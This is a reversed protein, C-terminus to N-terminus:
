EFHSFPESTDPDTHRRREKKAESPRDQIFDSAFAKPNSCLPGLVKEMDM